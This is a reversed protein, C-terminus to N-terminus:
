RLLLVDGALEVTRGDLLEVKVKYIYVDQENIKGNPALGNWGWSTDEPSVTDELHYVMAGWRNFIAFDSFSLVTRPRAYLRFLDNVGDENPTFVNPIFVPVFDDIIVEVMTSAFCGFDDM